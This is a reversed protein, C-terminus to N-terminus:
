VFVACRASVLESVRYNYLRAQRKYITLASDKFAAVMEGNRGVCYRSCDAYRCVEKGTNSFKVLGKSGAIAFFFDGDESFRGSAFNDVKASGAEQGTPGFFYLQTEPLGEAGSIGVAIPAKDSLVFSTCGPDRVSWIQQGTCDFLRIETVHLSTPLFNSYSILAFYRGQESSILKQNPGLPQSLTKNETFQRVEFDNRRLFYFCGSPSGWIRRYDQMEVSDIMVPTAPLPAAILASATLVLTFLAPQLIKLLHM